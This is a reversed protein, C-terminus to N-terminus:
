ASVAAEPNVQKIAEVIRNVDNAAALVADTLLALREGDNLGAALALRVDTLRKGLADVSETLALAVAPDKCVTADGGCDPLAAYKTVAINAFGTALEAIAVANEARARAEEAEDPDVGFLACGSLGISLATVLLFQKM